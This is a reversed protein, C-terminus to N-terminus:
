QAMEIPTRLASRQGTRSTEASRSQSSPKLRLFELPHLQSALAENARRELQAHIGFLRLQHALLRTQDVTM